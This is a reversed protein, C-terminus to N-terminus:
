RTPASGLWTLDVEFSGTAGGPEIGCRRLAVVEDPRVNMDELATALRDLAYGAGGEIARRWWWEAQDPQEAQWLREAYASQARADGAESRGRFYGDVTEGHGAEDFQEALSFLEDARCSDALGLFYEIRECKEIEAQHRELLTRLAWTDQAAIAELLWAEAPEPQGEAELKEALLKMAATEGAEAARELWGRGEATDPSKSGLLSMAYPVTAALRRLHEDAETVRDQGRLLRDLQGIALSHGALAARVLWAEARKEDGARALAAGRLYMLMPDGVHAVRDLLLNAEEQQGARELKDAWNGMATLDGAEAARRIFDAGEEPRRTSELYQGFAFMAAPDDLQAARRLCAEAAATAGSEGRVRRALALLAPAHDAMALPLCLEVVHRFLSRREAELAIRVRDGPDDTHAVLAQWLAAPPAVGSRSEALAAAVSAELVVTREGATDHRIEELAQLGDRALLATAIGLAVSDPSASEREGDTLYGLAAENLLGLTLPRRHGVRTADAAAQLVALAARGEAGSAELSALLDTVRTPTQM